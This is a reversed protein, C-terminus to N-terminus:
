GNIEKTILEMNAEKPDSSSQVWWFACFMNTPRWTAADTTSPKAPSELYFQMAGGHASVMYNSTGTKEVIKSKDTVPFLEPGRKPVVTKCRVEAPNAFFDVCSRETKAPVNAAIVMALFIESRCVDKQLLTHLDVMYEAVKDGDFRQQVKQITKM